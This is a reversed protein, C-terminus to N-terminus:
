ENKRRSFVGKIKSVIGGDSDEESSKRRWLKSVLRKLKGKMGPETEEETERKAEEGGRRQFRSGVKKEKPLKPKKLIFGVLNGEEDLQLTFTSVVPKKEEFPEELQREIETLESPKLNEIFDKRWWIRGSKKGERREKRPLKLSPFRRRKEKKESPMEEPEIPSESPIEKEEFSESPQVEEFVIEPEILDLLEPNKIREELTKLERFLAVIEEHTKVGASDKKESTDM